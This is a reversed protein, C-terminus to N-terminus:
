KKKKKKKESQPKPTRIKLKLKDVARMLIGYVGERSSSAHLPVLARGNGTLKFIAVNQVQQKEPEYLYLCYLRNRIYAYIEFKRREKGRGIRGRAIKKAGKAFIKGNKFKRNLKVDTRGWKGVFQPIREARM